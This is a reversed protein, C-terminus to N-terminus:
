TFQRCFFQTFYQFCGLFIPITGWFSRRSLGTSTSGGGEKTLWVFIILATASCLFLTQLCPIGFFFSVLKACAAQLFWKACSYTHPSCKCKKLFFVKLFVDPIHVPVFHTRGRPRLAASRAAQRGAVADLRAELDGLRQAADERERRLAELAQAHGGSWALLQGSFACMQRLAAPSLARGTIAEYLELSFLPPGACHLITPICIHM